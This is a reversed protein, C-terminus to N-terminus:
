ILGLRDLVMTLEQRTIGDTPRTGDLVGKEKAKQWAAAAWDAPKGADGEEKDEEAMAVGLYDCIGQVTAKALKDRYGSDKLLIVDAQNTHFGYEVIMAPATTARLVTYEPNHALGSGFLAVGAEQMRVLIAKAAKNRGASDGAVSTYIVLGSPATWGSGSANTHISVFLDAGAKNSITARATLSPKENEARTCIVEVGQAELLPRLRKYFDWTFEKEKYSGDPSGNVTDPGHGPDLCVLHKSM